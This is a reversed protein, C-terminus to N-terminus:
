KGKPFCIKTGLPSLIFGLGLLAIFGVVMFFDIENEALCLGFVGAIFISLYSVITKVINVIKM